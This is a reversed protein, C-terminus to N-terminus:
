KLYVTDHVYVYVTDPKVRRMMAMVPRIEEQVYVTDKQVKSVYTNVRVVRTVVTDLTMSELLAMASDSRARYDKADTSKELAYVQPDSVCGSLALALIPIPLLLQKM